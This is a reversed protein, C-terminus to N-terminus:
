NSIANHRTQNKKRAEEAAVRDPIIHRILILQKSVQEALIQTNHGILRGEKM